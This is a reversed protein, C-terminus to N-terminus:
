EPPRPTSEPSWTLFRSRVPREARPFRAQVVRVTIELLMQAGISVLAFLVKFGFYFIEREFWCYEGSPVGRITEISVRFPRSAQWLKSLALRAPGITEQEIAIDFSVSWLIAFQRTSEIAAIFPSSDTLFQNDADASNLGQSRETDVWTNIVQVFAM